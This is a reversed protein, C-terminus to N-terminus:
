QDTITRLVFTRTMLILVTVGSAIGIIVATITQGVPIAYVAKGPVPMLWLAILYSVLTLLIGTAAACFLSIGLRAFVRWDKERHTKM